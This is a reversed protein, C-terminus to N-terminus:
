RNIHFSLGQGGAAIIKGPPVDRLHKAGASGFARTKLVMPLFM